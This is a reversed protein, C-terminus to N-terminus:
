LGRRASDGRSAHRWRCAALILSKNEDGNLVFSSFLRFDRGFSFTVVLWACPSLRKRARKEIESRTDSLAVVAEGDSHRIRWFCTALALLSRPHPLGQQDESGGQLSGPEAEDGAPQEAEVKSRKAEVDGGDDEARDERRRKKGPGGDKETAKSDGTQDGPSPASSAGGSPAVGDHGERRSGM